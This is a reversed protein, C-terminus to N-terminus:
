TSLKVILAYGRNLWQFQLPILLVLVAGLCAAIWSRQLPTLDSFPFSLAWDVANSEAPFLTSQILYGVPSLLIGVALAPLLLALTLSVIGIPLLNIAFILARYTQAEKLLIILHRWSQFNLICPGIARINTNAINLCHRLPQPQEVESSLMARAFRLMAILIPIGIWVISLTLGLITGTLVFTFSFIGKPLLSLMMIWYRPTQTINYMMNM